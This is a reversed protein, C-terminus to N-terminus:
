LSNERPQKSESYLKWLGRFAESIAAGSLRPSASKYHIPVEAIHLRSCYFRIETQFFHGRSEIGRDLVKQLARRSFLEFGSTMDTLRTGLLVNALLTGGRSVIRRKFSSNTLRGGPGFRTGFVCDYGEEFRDFFRPIDGPQHSFGSDLELIWDCGAALAERYGRIYADVVCRNEPAWVVRLRPEAQAVQELIARTTDTTARDLVVFMQVERFGGCQRLVERVFREATDAENAM